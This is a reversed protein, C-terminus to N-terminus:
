KSELLDILAQVLAVPVRSVRRAPQVGSAQMTAVVSPDMGGTGGTVFGGGQGMGGGDYRQVFGGAGGSPMNPPSVAGDGPPIIGSPPEGQAM